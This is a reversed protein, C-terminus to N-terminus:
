VVTKELETLIKEKQSLVNEGIFVIETRDTDFDEVDFRGAVYNFLVGKGKTKLFGKSRYVEKPIQKTFDLFKKLDIARDTSFVFSEVNGHEHERKSFHRELELGFLVDTEVDCKITKIIVADGNLKRIKEEIETIQNEKVLDIKNLLIIDATEIQIRGTEGLSPFKIMAYADVISIISDLKLEPLNEEIDFVLADPEAVGTTEVVIMDPKIKQMIEKVAFEFEGTLSCCVCGGALEVMNINKGKIIKSDISIEGFENM